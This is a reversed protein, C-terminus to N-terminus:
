RIVQILLDNSQPTDGYKNKFHVSAAAKAKAAQLEEDDKRPDNPNVPIEVAAADGNKM